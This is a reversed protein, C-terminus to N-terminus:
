FSPFPGELGSKCALAPLRPTSYKHRPWYPISNSTAHRHLSKVRRPNKTLSIAKKKRSLRAVNVPRGTRPVVWIRYGTGMAPVVKGSSLTSLSSLNLILSRTSAFQRSQESEGEIFSVFPPTGLAYKHSRCPRSVASRSPKGNGSAGGHDHVMVSEQLGASSEWKERAGGFFVAAELGCPWSSLHGTNTMHGM